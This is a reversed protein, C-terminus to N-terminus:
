KAIHAIYHFYGTNSPIFPNSTSKIVQKRNNILSFIYTTPM